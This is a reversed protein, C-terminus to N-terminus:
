SASRRPSGVGIGTYVHEGFGSKLGIAVDNANALIRGAGTDHYSDFGDGPNVLFTDSGGGGDLTDNGGGGILTDDGSGGTIANDRTNGTLTQGTAATGVLKDVNDPLEYSALTTKVNDIGERNQGTSHFRPSRPRVKM